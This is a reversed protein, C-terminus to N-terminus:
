KLWIERFGCNLQKVIEDYKELIIKKTNKEFM